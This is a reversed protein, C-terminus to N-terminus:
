ISKAYRDYWMKDLIAITKKFTPEAIEDSAVRSSCAGGRCLINWLDCLFFFGSCSENKIGTNGVTCFFSLLIRFNFWPLAKVFGLATGRTYASRHFKRILVCELGDLLLSTILFPHLIQLGFGCPNGSPTTSRVAYPYASHHPKRIIRWKDLRCFLM